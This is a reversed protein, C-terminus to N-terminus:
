NIFFKKLQTMERCKISM